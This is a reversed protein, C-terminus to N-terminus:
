RNKHLRVFGFGQYGAESAEEHTNLFIYYFVMNHRDLYNSITRWHCYPDDMMTTIREM